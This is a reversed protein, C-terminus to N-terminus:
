ALSKPPKGIKSKKVPKSMSIDRIKGIPNKVGSGYSDGMGIKASSTHSQKLPKM